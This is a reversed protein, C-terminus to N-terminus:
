ETASQELKELIIPTLYEAVVQHGTPSFHRDIRGYLEDGGNAYAQRMEPTVDVFDLGADEFNPALIQGPQQWDVADPPLNLAEVLIGLEEDDLYYFPPLIVILMPTEADAALQDVDALIATTVDWKPDEAESLLIDKPLFDNEAGARASILALSNEYLRYLHSNQELKAYTLTRLTTLNEALSQDFSFSPPTLGTTPPYSEISEDTLDNKLYLFLLVLDYDHNALEARTKARYNNPGWAGVGTNVINVPTGLEDTLNQEIIATMTQEYEVQLAEVFSDGVALINIGSTDVPMEGIRHGNADTMLHVDGEGTNVIIDLNPKKQWGVGAVPEWAVSADWIILQPLFLRLGIELLILTFILSGFILLIRSFIFKFDINRM